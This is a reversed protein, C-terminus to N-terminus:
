DMLLDWLSQRSPVNQAPSSSAVGGRRSEDPGGCRRDLYHWCGGLWGERWGQEGLSDERLLWIAGGSPSSPMDWDQQSSGAGDCQHWRTTLGYQDATHAEGPRRCRDGRDGLILGLTGRWLGQRVRVKFLVGRGERAWTVDPALGSQAPPQGPCQLLM